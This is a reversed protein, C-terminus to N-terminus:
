CSVGKGRWYFCRGSGGVRLSRFFRLSFGLIGFFWFFLGCSFVKYAGGGVGRM